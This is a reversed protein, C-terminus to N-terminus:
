AGTSRAMQSVPARGVAFAGNGLLSQVVLAVAWFAPYEWGGNPSAFGWGNHVHVSLAGLMFPLLVLAVWRVQIGLLLAVGGFLEVFTTLYALWGPFGVSVFFQAAGPLTFVFIKQLSHALYLVGLTVRLLLAAFDANATQAAVSQRNM